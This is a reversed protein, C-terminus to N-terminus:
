RLNGKAFHESAMEFLRIKQSYDHEKQQAQLFLVNGEAVDILDLKKVKLILILLIAYYL